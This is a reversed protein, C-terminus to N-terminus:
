IVDKAIFLDIEDDTAFHTCGKSATRLRNALTLQSDLLRASFVFGDDAPNWPINNTKNYNYLIVAIRFYLAADKKRKAQLDTLTKLTTQIIRAFRQDYISYTHMFKREPDGSELSKEISDAELAPIRRRRWETQALHIVLDEETTGKPQHERNYRYLFRDFEEQSEGALLFSKTSFLGHKLSNQSSRQKGEETHPGPSKKEIETM